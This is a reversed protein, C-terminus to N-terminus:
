INTAAALETRGTAGLVWGGPFTIARADISHSVQGAEIHINEGFLVAYEDVLSRDPDILHIRDTLQLRFDPVISVGTLDPRPRPSDALIDVALLDASDGDQIWANSDMQYAQEGWRSSAAAGPPWQEDATLEDAPTVLVGGLWLSPTGVPLDTYNSPTVLYASTRTAQNHVVVRITQSDPQSIAFTLAGTFEDVGNRDSSARFWSRGDDTVHGTPLKSVTSDLSTVLTEPHLTITRSSQPAVRWVSELQGVVTPTSFAWSTYPVTVRNIVSAASLGIQLEKLSIRSTVDRVSPKTRLTARNTFRFVGYEDFGAVALEADAIQQIVQWPDGSVTPIVQLANLSPDLVSTVGSGSAALIASIADAGTLTTSRTAVVASLDPISRLLSRNDICTFTVAGSQPDVAVEDVRGTFKRIMEPTGYSGPTHVGMDVTIQCYLVDSGYLPSTTSYPGFLWAATKTEDDQDVLGSLVVTAERAPYGTLLRTGDPMDTTTSADVEVSDIALTVDDYAAAAAPLTIQVHVAVIQEVGEYMAAAATSAALM